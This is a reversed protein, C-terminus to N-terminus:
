PVTPPFTCAPNVGRHCTGGLCQLDPWYVDDACTSTCTTGLNAVTCTGDPQCNEPMCDAACPTEAMCIREDSSCASDVCFQGKTCSDGLLAVARCKGMLYDCIEGARCTQAGCLFYPQTPYPQCQGNHCIDTASCDWDHQCASLEPLGAVCVGRDIASGICRLPSACRIQNFWQDNANVATNQNDPTLCTAGAPLAVDARCSGDFCLSGDACPAKRGCAAGLNVPATCVATPCGWCRGEQCEADDDCAQGSSLGGTFVRLCEAPMAPGDARASTFASLSAFVRGWNEASVGAICAAAAVPDYQLRGRSVLAIRQRLLKSAGNELERTCQQAGKAVSGLPSGTACIKQTLATPLDALNLGDSRPQGCSALCIGVFLTRTLWHTARAPVDRGALHQTTGGSMQM